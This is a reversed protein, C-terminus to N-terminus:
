KNVLERKGAIKRKLEKIRQKRERRLVRDWRYIFSSKGEKQSWGPPWAPPQEGKLLREGEEDVSHRITYPRRPPRGRQSRLKEANLYGFPFEVYEGRRLALGMARFVANVIRVARRRSVGRGHLKSVLYGRGGLNRGSDM